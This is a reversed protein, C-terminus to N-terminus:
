YKENKVWKMNGSVCVLLTHLTKPGKEFPMSICDSHPKYKGATYQEPFPHSNKYDLDDSFSAPSSQSFHAANLTLALFPSLSLTFSCETKTLALLMGSLQEKLKWWACRIQNWPIHQWLFSGSSFWWLSSLLYNSINKNQWQDTRIDALSWM